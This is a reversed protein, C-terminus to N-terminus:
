LYYTKAPIGPELSGGYQKLFQSAREHASQMYADFPLEFGPKTVTLGSKFIQAVTEGNIVIQGWLNEPDNDAPSRAGEPEKTRAESEAIEDPSMQRMAEPRVTLKVFSDDITIPKIKPPLGSQSSAGTVNM